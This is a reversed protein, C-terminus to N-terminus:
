DIKVTEINAGKEADYRVINLIDPKNHPQFALVVDNSAIEKVSGLGSIAYLGGGNTWAFIQDGRGPLCGSVYTKKPFTIVRVRDLVADALILNGADTLVAYPNSRAGLFIIDRIGEEFEHDCINIENKVPDVMGIRTPSYVGVQDFDISKFLGVPRDLEETDIWVLSAGAAIPFPVYGFIGRAGLIVLGKDFSALAIVPDRIRFVPVFPPDGLFLIGGAATGGIDGDPHNELCLVPAEQPFYEWHTGRLRVIMSEYIGVILEQNAGFIAASHDSIRSLAPYIEGDASIGAWEGSETVIFTEKEGTICKVPRGSCPLLKREGTQLFQRAKSINRPLPSKASDAPGTSLNSINRANHAWNERPGLAIGRIACYIEWLCEHRDATESFWDLLKLGGLIPGLATPAINERRVAVLRSPPDNEGFLRGEHQTWPRDRWRSTVIFLGVDSEQIAKEIESQVPNGGPIQEEDLWVTFGVTKLWGAIDRVFDANEAPEHSYSIFVQPRSGSATTASLDSM